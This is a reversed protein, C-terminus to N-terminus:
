ALKPVLPERPNYPIPLIPKRPDSAAAGAVACLEVASLEREASEISQAAANTEEITGEIACKCGLRIM